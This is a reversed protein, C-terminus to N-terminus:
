ALRFDWKWRCLSFHCYPIRCQEPYWSTIVLFCISLFAQASMINHSRPFPLVIIHINKM